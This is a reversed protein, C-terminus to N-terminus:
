EQIWFKRNKEWNNHYNLINDYRPKFDKVNKYVNIKLHKIIQFGYFSIRYKAINKRNFIYVSFSPTINGNRTIKASFVEVPRNDFITTYKLNKPLTVVEINKDIINSIKIEKKLFNFHFYFNKNKELSKKSYTLINECILIKAFNINFKEEREKIHYFGIDLIILFIALTIIVEVLYFAYKKRM